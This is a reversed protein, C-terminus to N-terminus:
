TATSSCKTGIKLTDFSIFCITLSFKFFLAICCRPHIKFTIVSFLFFWIKILYLDCDDFYYYYFPAAYARHDYASAGCFLLGCVCSANASAADCSSSDNTNKKKTIKSLYCFLQIQRFLQRKQSHPFGSKINKNQIKSLANPFPQHKVKKYM